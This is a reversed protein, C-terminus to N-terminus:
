HKRWRLQGSNVHWETKQWNIVQQESLMTIMTTILQQILTGRAQLCARRALLPRLQAWILAELQSGTLRGSQQRLAFFVHAHWVLYPVSLLPLQPVTPMTWTPLQVITGGRQYCAVQLADFGRQHRLRALMLQQYYHRLHTDPLTPTNIKPALQRLHLVSQSRTDLRITQYTLPETDLTLVHHLLRVSTSQTDLFLLFLGWRQQYQLFKLAKSNLHLQRQYPRGLLWLVQYGHQRYGQTRAALREVSLPSCQFELALPQATGRRVLIDPRQHLEPLGAELRVTYGSAAFWTALQQKGRLHETTEGESFADCDTAHVHAFHPVIVAGRKLQVPQVCGPCHYEIQRDATAANVLQHQADMAILM